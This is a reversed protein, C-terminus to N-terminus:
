TRVMIRPSINYPSVEYSITGSQASDPQAKKGLPVTTAL